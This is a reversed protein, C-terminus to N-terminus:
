VGQIGCAKVFRAQDFRPNDKKFYASLRAILRIGDVNNGIHTAEKSVLISDAIAEYDKKTMKRGEKTWRGLGAPEVLSGGLWGTLHGGRANQLWEWGNERGVTDQGAKGMELETTAENEAKSPMQAHIARNIRWRHFGSKRRARGNQAVTM